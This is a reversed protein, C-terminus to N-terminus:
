RAPTESGTKGIERLRSTLTLRDLKEIPLAVLLNIRASLEAFARMFARRKEQDSGQV